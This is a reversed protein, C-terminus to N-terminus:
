GASSRACIQKNKPMIHPRSPHVIIGGYRNPSKRGRGRDGNQVDFYLWPNAVNIRQMIRLAEKRFDRLQSYGEGFREHLRRWTILDSPKAKTFATFSAHSLFAYLDLALANDKFAKLTEIDVPIPSRRLVETFEATLQIYNPWLGQQDPAGQNFWMRSEQSVLRNFRREPGGPQASLDFVSIQCNLFMELHSQLEAWARGRKEYGM